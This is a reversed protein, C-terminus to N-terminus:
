VQGLLAKTSPMGTHPGKQLKIAQDNLPETPSNYKTKAANQSFHREPIKKLAPPPTEKQHYNSNNMTNASESRVRLQSNGIGVQQYVDSKQVAPSPKSSATNSDNDQLQSVKFQKVQQHRQQYNSLQASKAANM